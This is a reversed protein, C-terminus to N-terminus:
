DAIRIDNGVIYEEDLRIVLTNKVVEARLRQCKKWGVKQIYGSPAMDYVDVFISCNTEFYHGVWFRLRYTYPAYSM